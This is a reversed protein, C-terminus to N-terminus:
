IHEEDIPQSKISWNLNCRLKKSQIYSMTCPFWYDIDVLVTMILEFNELM